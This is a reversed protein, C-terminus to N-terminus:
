VSDDVCVPRASVCLWDHERQGFGGLTGASRELVLSPPSMEVLFTTKMGGPEQM